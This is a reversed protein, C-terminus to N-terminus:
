FCESEDHIMPHRLSLMIKKDLFINLYSGVFLIDLCFAECIALQLAFQVDSGKADGTPM